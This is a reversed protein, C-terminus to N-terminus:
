LDGLQYIPMYFKLITVAILVGSFIITIIPMATNLFSLKKLCEDTIATHHLKIIKIFNKEGEASKYDAFNYKDIIKSEFLFDSISNGNLLYKTKINISKQLRFPLVCIIMSLITTVPINKDIGNAFIKLFMGTKYKDIILQYQYLFFIFILVMASLIIIFEINSEDKGQLDQNLISVIQIMFDHFYFKMIIFLGIGFCMNVVPLIMKSRCQMIFDNESKLYLICECILNAFDFRGGFLRFLGSLHNSFFNKLDMMSNGISRGNSISCQLYEIVFIIQMNQMNNKLRSISELFNMGNGINNLINTFFNIQINIPIKTKKIKVIQFNLVNPNSIALIFDSENKTFILKSSKNKFKIKLLKEKM